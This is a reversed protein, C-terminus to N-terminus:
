MKSIVTPFSEEVTLEEDSAMVLILCETLYLGSNRIYRPREVYLNKLIDNPICM